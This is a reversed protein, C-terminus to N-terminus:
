RTLISGSMKKCILSASSKHRNDYAKSNMTLILNELSITLLMYQTTNKSCALKKNMASFNEKVGSLFLNCKFKFYVLCTLM